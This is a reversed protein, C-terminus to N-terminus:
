RVVVAMRRLEGDLKFGNTGNLSSLSILGSSGVSQGGFVVYSRGTAGAYSIAGIILDPYGDGNIDGATNVSWGSQDGIFEGDLKFGNVGNLNSLAIVGSSGVNKGGFVVYSRGMSTNHQWAGILLDDYGDGNIDGAASVSWGSVDSVAEGDLKFGNVGNLSSLSVLGSSGVSQGGFVVYSRGLRVLM